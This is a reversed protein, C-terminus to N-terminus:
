AGHRRQLGTEFEAAVSSLLYIRCLSEKRMLWLKARLSIRFRERPTCYQSAYTSLVVMMVSFTITTMTLLSTANATLVSDALEARTLFVSPIMRELNGQGPRDLSDILFALLLAFLIYLLPILWFSVNKQPFPLNM